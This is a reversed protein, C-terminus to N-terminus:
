KSVFEKVKEVVYKIQEESLEAFMPLSIIENMVKETVPFDGEKFGLHSFAPQIHLPYKYHFGCGIGNDSLFKQLGIRDSVRIVYLHWVPLAWEPVHPLVVEDVGNFYSRYLDANHRRKQNWQELYKLKVRLVTAQISDLRDTSGSFHHEYKVKSGHDRYMKIFDAIAEDNTGVAGGDGYAGLNKGPYFSFGAANGYIGINKWEGNSKYKAGHAQACDELVSLGHQKAIKMIEDMAAPQGYLHVPIIVRTNETIAAEILGANMNYTNEDIDVFVPRGGAQVVAEATAIFTNAPIIAEWKGHQWESEGTKNIARLAIALASTGSNTGVAHKVGQYRAFDEEFAQLYRGMVFATNDIVEQIASDMESKM